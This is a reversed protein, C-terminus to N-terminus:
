GRSKWSLPYSIDKQGTGPLHQAKASCAAYASETIRPGWLPLLGYCKTDDNQLLASEWKDRARAQMVAALYCDLSSEAKMRGKYNTKLVIASLQKARMPMKGGPLQETLKLKFHKWCLVAEALSGPHEDSSMQEMLHLQRIITDALMTRTEPHDAALGALGRLIYNVSPKM